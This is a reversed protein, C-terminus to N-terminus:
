RGGLVTRWFGLIDEEERQLSYEQRVHDRALMGKRLIRQPDTRALGLASEAQRAFGLVDGAEVPYSFEPRFYERGGWGHYGVVVCGSAMAELPPLPCGEPYGFSFFFQAQGLVEAVQSEGKGDIPVLAYGELQGRHKLLNFVQVVETANKRPMFAICPAKAPAPRFLASDIGYRIRTLRAQPFAHALYARNDESVVLVARVEPHTYPNSLDRPDVGYGSFTLYANQNFIVKPVGPALSALNPGLIEPLVLVDGPQFPTAALSAVRTSHPFWSCRFGPKHHLLLADLHHRNLVDVHRYLRRIGGSPADYDPCFVLIRPM